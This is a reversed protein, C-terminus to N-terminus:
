PMVAPAPAGAKTGVAGVGLFEVLEQRRMMADAYGLAVLERCYDAEFLLYSVLNAGHRNHVGLGRLLFRITRPLRHAHRAAIQEPERSPAILLPQVARLGFEAQERREPPILGVTRNIRRLRELDTELNDFFISNLTHGAIQALSPYEDGGPRAPAAPAEPRMGVILLREAGLHIAPSLPAVQRMSGDGFYERNIREAAFLFPLASSAMLHDHTIEAPCGLRRARKWPAITPVGQYFSVSQGSDYGSCTIGLARLAGAEIADQIRACPLRRELLERLPARDLLARPNGRGLGGLMLATGWRLGNALIERADTRFVQDVRFRSWVYALRRVGEHFRTAYIALAAANIAGASSGCLVPFPNPAGAPLMAAVAKLVGVQYAARAGGGALILGVTPRRGETAQTM